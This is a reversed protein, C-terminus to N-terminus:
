YANVNNQLEINMGRDFIRLLTMYLTPFWNETITHYSKLEVKPPIWVKETHSCAFVTLLTAIMVFSHGLLKFGTHAFLIIQNKKM